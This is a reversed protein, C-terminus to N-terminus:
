EEDSEEKRTTPVIRYVRGYNMKYSRKLEWRVYQKNLKNVVEKATDEDQILFFVPTELKHKRRIRWEQYVNRLYGFGEYAAKVLSVLLIGTLIIAIINVIAELVALLFGYFTILGEVM